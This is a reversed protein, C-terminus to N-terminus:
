ANGTEGEETEDGSGNGGVTATVTATAVGLSALIAARLQEVDVDLVRLLEQAQDADAVRLLAAVAAHDPDYYKCETVKNITLGICGNSCWPHFTWARADCIVGPVQCYRMQYEALGYYEAGEDEVPGLHKCTACMPWRLKAALISTQMGIFGVGTDRTNIEETTYTPTYTDM